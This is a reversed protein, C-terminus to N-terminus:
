YIRKCKAIIILSKPSKGCCIHLIELMPFHEPRIRDLQALTGYKITLSRLNILWTFDVNPSHIIVLRGIQTSFLHLIDIAKTDNYSVVHNVRKVSRIISDIYSNLGFFATVIEQLSLPAFIHHFIEIPLHELSTSHTNDTSM